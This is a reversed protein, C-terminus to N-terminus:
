NREKDIRERAHEIARDFEDFLAITDLERYTESFTMMRQMLNLMKGQLEIKLIVNFM